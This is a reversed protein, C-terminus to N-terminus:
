QCSCSTGATIYTTLIIADPLGVNDDYNPGTMNSCRDVLGLAINGTHAVADSLGVGTSGAVQPDCNDQGSTLARQGAGNVIDPSNIAATGIPIGDAKIEVRNGTPLCGGGAVFFTVDGAVNAIASFTPHVQGICWAVLPDSAAAVTCEVFAGNVPGLTGGVNVAFGFLGDPAITMMKPVNSNEPTPINAVAATAGFACAAVIVLGTRIFRTM